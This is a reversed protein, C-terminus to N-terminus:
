ALVRLPSISPDHLRVMLHAIAAVGWVASLNHRDAVLREPFWSGSAEHTAVLRGALGAAQAHLDASGSAWAGTLAVEALDLAQRSTPRRPRRRLALRTLAIASQRAAPQSTTDSGDSGIARYRALRALVDGTTPNFASGAHREEPVRRARALAWDVGTNLGPLASLATAEPPQPSPVLRGEARQETLREALLNRVRESEPSPSRDALLGLLLGSIGGVVDAPASRVDEHSVSSAFTTALHRLSDDGLAQACRLATYVLAGAGYFGGLWHPGPRIFKGRELLRATSTVASRTADAFRESGTTSWLDSFVVALGCTGSLLEPRLVDVVRIDALPDYVSGAWGLGGDPGRFALGVLWDGLGTARDLWTQSRKERIGHVAHLSAAARQHRSPKHDGSDLCSRLLDLREDLDVRDVEALRRSLRETATGAFYEPIRDRGRLGVWTAGPEASFLPIDLEHLADIESRAMRLHVSRQDDEPDIGRYMRDLFIQRSVGDILALPALSAALIRQYTWTDRHLYRITVHALAGLPGEADRLRDRGAELRRQMDRYGSQLPGVYEDVSVTGNERSPAFPPPRWRLYGERSVQPASSGSFLADSRFAMPITLERHHALAGIDEGRVGPAVRVPLSVAGTPIMSEELHEQALEASLGLEAARRGLRRRPRPYLITELDVFVPDEGAAILNDLWLDRGELLEFLRVLAGMRRYFRAVEYENRCPRAAVHEEWGYGDGLVVRRVHLSDDDGQSGNVLELLGLFAAAGQLDKTKYVVQHGSSFTLVAVSRGGDHADGADGRFGTLLVPDMGDLLRQALVSQDEALRTLMEAMADIWNACSRGIVYALGAFTEFRDLWRGLSM